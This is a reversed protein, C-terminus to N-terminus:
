FNEKEHSVLSVVSIGRCRHVSSMFFLIFIRFLILLHALLICLFVCVCVVVCVVVCVFVVVCVCVRFVWLIDNFVVGLSQSYCGWINYYLIGCM